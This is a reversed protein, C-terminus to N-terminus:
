DDVLASDVTFVVPKSLDRAYVTDDPRAASRWLRRQRQRPRVTVTAEPKDLGYKKLDAPTASDAVISKM